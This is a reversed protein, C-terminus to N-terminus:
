DSAPDCCPPAAPTLAAIVPACDEARGGCCDELLFHLLDGVGDWNVVYRISRGERHNVLLNAAVLHALNQSTTSAKAGLSEAINGAAMGTAGAKVLLRFADLRPAQSLASFALLARETSLATQNPTPSPTPHSKNMEM